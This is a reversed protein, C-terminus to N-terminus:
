AHEHEGEKADRPQDNIKESELQQRLLRSLLRLAQRQNSQPLREWSPNLPTATQFLPAPKTTTNARHKEV